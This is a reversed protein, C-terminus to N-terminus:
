SDTLTVGVNFDSFIEYKVRLTGELRVRGLDTLYPYAALSIGADLKPAEYSFAEWSAALQGTLYTSADGTAYQERLASLGAKATLFTGNTRIFTYMAGAGVSLRLDLSLEDNRDTGISLQATWRQHYLEGTLQTSNRISTPSTDSALLYEEFQFTAGMREGRYGLLGDTSLTTTKNAKAVTFGLDLYSTLRSAIGADIPVMSVVEAVPLTSGDALQLLGTVEAPLAPLASFHRTAATTEIEFVHFSTVRLVKIWDVSLRGADDTKVDLKGRSLGMIECTIRDGNALVLIDTKEAATAALPLCCALALLWAGPM